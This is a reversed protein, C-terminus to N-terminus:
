RYPQGSIWLVLSKRVGKTVPSVRHLFFSPFIIACGKKRPLKTVDKGILFEFDGGEYEDPESLQLTISVKRRSFVGSGIDMHWDYHGGGANYVTYQLDDFIGILEFNWLSRNAETVMGVFKEYLWTCDPNQQPLWKIESKRYSELDHTDTSLVAQKFPITEQLKELREVEDPTLAQQFWYWNDISTQRFDEIIFSM